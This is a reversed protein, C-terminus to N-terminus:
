AGAASLILDTGLGMAFGIFVGLTALEKFGIKAGVNTMESIVYIIAGAALTLFLVSLLPSVFHYGILTGVFTPGGGILGLRIITGASAAGSGALPAAIGFGETMNHLGFGIILLLALQIAGTAASQGIALGESFNHLGIGAAIMTALGLPSLTGLPTRAIFSRSFFVLSLLGVALGGLYTALLTYFQAPPAGLQLKHLADEVPDSAQRLIDYLLFFLVGVAIANLLAIGRPSIKKMAAFPLGLFITLGAIAGLIYVTLDHLEPPSRGAGTGMGGPSMSMTNASSALGTNDPAGNYQVATMLGGPGVPGNMLHDLVHCHVMWTGPKANAMFAIDRTEGPGITLTVMSQRNQPAVTQGDIAVVQFRHGHVHMTHFETGSINIERIRVRDGRTVLYPKTLPYSKGNISFYNETDSIIRWSSLLMLYDRNYHTQPKAEDVVVAGYLGRDLQNLDDFHTHYIYTGADRATFEYVFSQGPQVANQSMGPVGDMDPDVPLGHFHVTTPAPLDNVLVVRVRDGQRVHITPGPVTGNYTWAQTVIGPAVEWPKVEAFIYYTKINGSPVPPLSPLLDFARTAQAEAQARYPEYASAPQAPVAAQVRAGLAIIAVAVLALRAIALKM